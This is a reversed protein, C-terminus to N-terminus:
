HRHDNLAELVPNPSRALEFELLEFQYPTDIETCYETIYPVVKNGYTNLTQIQQNKVIDIYGNPHYTKPFVQRPLNIYDREGEFDEFLGICYGADDLKYMKYPPEALEHMSRISSCRDKIKYFFRLCDSIIEPDRLPATPRVFAVYEGGIVDFYHKLVQNDTSNDQAYEAPRLFPVEAGYELSVTAIEEDDTSVIVRDIGPTARCALISYAILPHGMLNKINKRPVGKSGGRAPIIANM